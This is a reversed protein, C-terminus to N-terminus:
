EVEATANDCSVGSGQPGRWAPWNEAVTPLAISYALLMGLACVIPSKM